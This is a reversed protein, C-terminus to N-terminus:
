KGSGSHQRQGNRAARLVVIFVEFITKPRAVISHTATNAACGAFALPWAHALDGLPEPDIGARHL